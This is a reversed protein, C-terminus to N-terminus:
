KNQNKILQYFRTLAAQAIQEDQDPKVGSVGIAGILSEEVIIPVGGQLPTIPMSLAAFRGDNIMNEYSGSSKGSIVSTFAKQEAIKASMAPANNLRSLAILCGTLDCVAISVAWQYKNAEEIAADIILKADQYEIQYNKKM